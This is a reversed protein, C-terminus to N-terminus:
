LLVTTYEMNTYELYTKVVQVNLTHQEEKTIPESCYICIVEHDLSYYYRVTRQILTEVKVIDTM